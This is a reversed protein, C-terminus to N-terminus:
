SSDQSSPAWLGYEYFTASCRYRKIREFVTFFYDVPHWICRVPWLVNAGAAEDASTSIDEAPCEHQFLFWRAKFVWVAIGVKWTVLGDSYSYFARISCLNRSWTSFRHQFSPFTLGSSIEKDTMIKPLGLWALSATLPLVFPPCGTSSRKTTSKLFHTVTDHRDRLSIKQGFPEFPTLSGSMLLGLLVPDPLM